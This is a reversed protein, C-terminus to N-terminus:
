HFAEVERNLNVPPDDNFFKLGARHAKLATSPLADPMPPMIMAQGFVPAVFADPELNHEKLTSALATM